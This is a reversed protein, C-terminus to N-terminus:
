IRFFFMKAAIFVIFLSRTKSFIERFKKCFIDGFRKREKYLLIIKISMKKGGSEGWFYINKGDSYRFIPATLIRLGGTGARTSSLRECVKKQSSDLKALL